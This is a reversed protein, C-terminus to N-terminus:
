RGHIIDATKPIVLRLYTKIYHSITISNSYPNQEM